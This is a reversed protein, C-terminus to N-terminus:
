SQAPAPRDGLAERVTELFARPDDVHELVHRCCVFDVPEAAHAATYADRVFRVRGNPAADAEGDYSPDFGIGRNRGGACLLSLFEGKGCGLELVDADRLAYREVLRDALSAAYDQFTPSFHLSNEYAPTYAVLAPDFAANWLMGCGDCYALEIPGRPASRAEERPPWLVNSYVLADPVVLITSGARRCVPCPRPDFGSM